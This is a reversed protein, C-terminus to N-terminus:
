RLLLPFSNTRDPLITQVIVTNGPQLQAPLRVQYQTQGQLTTRALLQGTLTYINLVFQDTGPVTIYFSHGSAPNPFIGTTRAPQPITVTCITSYSTSGDQGVRVIRYDSTGPTATRDEFHYSSSSSGDANITALTTWDDNGVSRQVLYDSATNNLPDTWSLTVANGEPVATPDIDALALTTCTALGSNNLTECGTTSTGIPVNGGDNKFKGSSIKLTSSPAVGVFSGGTVNLNSVTVSAVNSGDGITLDSGTGVTLTGSATLTSNGNLNATTSELNVTSASVAGSSNVTLTSNTITLTSSPDLQANNNVTVTGGTIGANSSPNFSSSNNFTLTSGSSTFTGNVTVSATNNTTFRGGTLTMGGNFTATATSSVSINDGSFTSGNEVTLTANGTIDYTSRSSTLGKNATLSSGAPMNIFSNSVTLVSSNVTLSNSGLNVTSNTFTVANNITISSNLNVTDTSFATSGTFSFNAINLSGGDFTCGSCSGTSPLTIAWGAPIDITCSACSNGGVLTSWTETSSTMTYTAADAAFPIGLIATLTVFLFATTKM